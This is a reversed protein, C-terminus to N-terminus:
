EHLIPELELILFFEERVLSSGFFSFMCGDLVLAARHLNVYPQGQVVAKFSFPFAPTSLPSKQHLNSFM